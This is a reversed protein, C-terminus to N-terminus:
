YIRKLFFKNKPFIFILRIVNSKLTSFCGDVHHTCHWSHRNAQFTALSLLSHFTWTLQVQTPIWMKSLLCSRGTSRIWRRGTRQQRGRPQLFFLSQWFNVNASSYAILRYISGRMVDYRKKKKIECNGSLKCNSKMGRRRRNTKKGSGKLRWEKAKRLLVLGKKNEEYARHSFRMSSFWNFEKKNAPTRMASLLLTM